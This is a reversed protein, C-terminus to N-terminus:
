RAAADDRPGHPARRAAPRPAGAVTRRTRRRPPTLRMTRLIRRLAALEEPTCAAFSKTQVTSAKAAAYGSSPRSSTRSRATSSPRPSRSRRGAGRGPSRRSRRHEPTVTGPEDLFYACSPATTRRCRSAGTVLTCRGAWYLDVLDTPDVVTAVACYTLVDGSGVTSGRGDRLEGTFDVLMAVYADRRAATLCRLHGLRPRERSRSSTTATRSWPVSRTAPSAPSSSRPASSTSPAAGLRHDRRRRAAQRPGDRAAPPRRAVAAEALSRSVGPRGCRSSRSSASPRRPLRGLPLPLSAQPRRAARPHPQLDARGAAAARRRDHRDRPHHDAFDSLLELLFAEFEDDARDVEDVLLVAGAGTECRTSSRGSSSSARASCRTSPVTTPSSTSPCRASRRADAPRLGVRLAGPQHRHGRLVPAPDPSPRAGAGSAKALETKGVGVEGELLVPRDLTLAVHVTTALGRDALYGVDQLADTLAPVSEPRTM